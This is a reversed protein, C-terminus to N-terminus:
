WLSHDSNKVAKAYWSIRPDVRAFYLAYMYASLAEARLSFSLPMGNRSEERITHVPGAQM